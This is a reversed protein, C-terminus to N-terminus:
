GWPMMPQGTMPDMDPYGAAAQQQPAGFAQAASMRGGGLPEGDRTKQVPGLGFGIGKKGG